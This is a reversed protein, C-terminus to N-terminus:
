VVSKRDANNTSIRCELILENAKVQSNIIGNYTSSQYDIILLMFVIIVVSVVITIGFGLALGVKIKMNKFM